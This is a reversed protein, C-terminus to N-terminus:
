HVSASVSPYVHIEYSLGASECFRTVCEVDEYSDLMAFPYRKTIIAIPESTDLDQAVVADAFFQRMDVIMVHRTGDLEAIFGAKAEDTVNDASKLKRVWEDYNCQQQFASLRTPTNM